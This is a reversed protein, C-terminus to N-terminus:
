PLEYGAARVSLEVERPDRTFVLAAARFSTTPVYSVTTTAQELTRDGDTLAGSVSVNRATKGGENRIRVHVVFQDEGREVREVDVSLEPGGEAGALAQYGLFCLLGVVLMVGLVGVLREGNSSVEPDRRSGGGDGEDRDGHADRASMESM